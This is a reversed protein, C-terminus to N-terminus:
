QPGGMASAAVALYLDVNTGHLVALDQLGDGDIDGVSFNRLDPGEAVLIGPAYDFSDPQYVAIGIQMVNGGEDSPRIVRALYIIDPYTDANFLLTSVKSVDYNEDLFDLPNEGATLAGDANPFTAAPFPTAKGGFAALLDFDGDQDLDATHISQTGLLSMGSLEAASSEIGPTPPSGEATVVMLNAGADPNVPCNLTHDLGVLEDVGDSSLDAVAWRSCRIEFAAQAMDDLTTHHAGQADLGTPGGPIMWISPQRVPEVPVGGGGDDFTLPPEAVAVVDRGPEGNFEGMLAFLPVHAEGTAPVLTFPSVMRRSSSGEFFAAGRYTTGDEDEFQSVVLADAILDNFGSQSLGFVPSIRVIKGLRGMSTPPEFQADASGFIVMFENEGTAEDERVFALDEHFDGDFDTAVLNRNWCLSQGCPRTFVVNGGPELRFANFIGVGTGLFIDITQGTSTAVDLADDRNFDGVTADFWGVTTPQVVAVLSGPDGVDNPGDQPETIYIGDPYVYDARPNLTLNTAYLPFAAGPKTNLPSASDYEYGDLTLGNNRYLVVGNGESLGGRVSVLLDSDGDGDYDAFIAGEQVTAGDPLLLTDFYLPVWAGAIANFGTTLVLVETAGEFALVFEDREDTNNVRGLPIPVRLESIDAGDPFPIQIAPVEPSYVANATADVFLISQNFLGTAVVLTEIEQPGFSFPSFAVPDLDRNPSGLFVALGASTPVLIDLLGDDDFPAFTVPGEPRRTQVHEIDTLTGDAAGFRFSVRDAINGVLDGFGDGDLDGITFDAVDFTYPSGATLSLTASAARCRGDKGCSWGSPCDAPATCVYACANQEDAPGCTAGDFASFGDCDEGPELVNNGCQGPEIQEFDTCASAVLFFGFVLRNM